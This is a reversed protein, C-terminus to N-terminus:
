ALAVHRTHMERGDYLLLTDSLPTSEPNDCWRLLEGVQFSAVTAVVHPLIPKAAHPAAEYGAGFAREYGGAAPLLTTVQGYWTEVGGHFIPARVGAAALRAQVETLAARADFSDLCDFIAVGNSDDGNETGAPARTGGNETDRLAGAGGRASAQEFADATLREPHVGVTLEPNIRLLRRSAVEVKRLRLDSQEYLIQRNLDPEDVVGPDWLELRLPGLRALHMAVNTGLGGVGALVITTSCLTEWARDSLLPTHREYRSM